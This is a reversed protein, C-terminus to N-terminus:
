PCQNGAPDRTSLTQSSSMQDPEGGSPRVAEIEFGTEDIAKNKNQGTPRFGHDVGAELVLEFVASSTGFTTPAVPTMSRTTTVNNATYTALVQHDDPLLNDITASVTVDGTFRDDADLCMKTPSVSVATIRVPDLDPLEEETGDDGTGDDGTEDDDGPDPSESEPEDIVDEAEFGGGEEEHFFVISTRGVYQEAGVRGEVVFFRDGNPFTHSEAPITTRFGFARGTDPELIYPDLTVERVVSVAAGSGELDISRFLLSASDVASSFRVVVSIDRENQAPRDDDVEVLRMPSPGVQFQVVRPLEPDGAELATPARESVFREDYVRQYVQWTVLTTFRKIGAERDSWTVFRIVDYDREEFSDETAEAQSIETVLEPVTSRRGSEAPGPLTVLEEGEFEWVGDDESLGAFGTSALAALESEYNAASDWPVSQLEEHLRTMLATAQVRRENVLATRTFQILSSAAATLIVGLLLIAILVEVLTMGDDNSRRAKVGQADLASVSRLHVSGAPEHRSAVWGTREM